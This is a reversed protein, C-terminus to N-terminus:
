PDDQVLLPVLIKELLILRFRKELGEELHSLVPRHPLWVLFSKQDIRSIENVAM